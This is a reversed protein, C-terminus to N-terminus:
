TALARALRKCVRSFKSLLLGYVIGGANPFLFGEGANTEREATLQGPEARLGIRLNWSTSRETKKGRGGHGRQVVVKITDEGSPRGSSRSQSTGAEERSRCLTITDPKM